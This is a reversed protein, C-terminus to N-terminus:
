NEYFFPIKFTFGKENQYIYIGKYNNLQLQVKYLESIFSLPLFFGNLYKNLVRNIIAIANAGILISLEAQRRLYM